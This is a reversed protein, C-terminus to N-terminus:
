IKKNLIPLRRNEPGADFQFYCRLPLSFESCPLKNKKTL